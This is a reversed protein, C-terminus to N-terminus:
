WDNVVDQAPDAHINIVLPGRLDAALKPVADLDAMTRVSLGAGGLSRAIEDFDPWAMLAHRPDAGYEALKTYEVGYSGDNFVLIVVPIGYRAATSVEILSMM